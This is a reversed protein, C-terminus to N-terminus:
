EFRGHDIEGQTRGKDYAVSRPSNPDNDYTIGTVLGQWGDSWGYAFPDSHADVHHLCAICVM